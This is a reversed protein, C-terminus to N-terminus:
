SGQGERAACAGPSSARPTAFLFLGREGVFLRKGPELSTFKDASFRAM